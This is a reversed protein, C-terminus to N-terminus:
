KGNYLAAPLPNSSLLSTFASSLRPFFIPARATLCLLISSRLTYIPVSLLECHMCCFYLCMRANAYTHLHCFLCFLFLLFIRSAHVSLISEYVRERDSDTFVTQEVMSKILAARLSDSWVRVEKEM